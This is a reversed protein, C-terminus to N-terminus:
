VNLNRVTVDERRKNHRFLEKNKDTNSPYSKIFVKAKVKKLFHHHHIGLLIRYLSARKTDKKLHNVSLSKM